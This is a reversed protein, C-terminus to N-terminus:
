AGGRRCTGNRRQGGWWDVFLNITCKQSWPVWFDVALGWATWAPPPCLSTSWTRGKDLCSHPVFTFIFSHDLLFM